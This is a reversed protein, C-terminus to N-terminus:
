RGRVESAGLKTAWASAGAAIKLYVEEHFEPTKRYPDPIGQAGTWQDFLMVKGSLEPYLATIRRRHEPEMVLILDSERGLDATFQRAIHGEVSTGHHAAVTAATEDAPHGVVAGLGASAVSIHPHSANLKGALIREGVVSRCINGVCVILINNFM